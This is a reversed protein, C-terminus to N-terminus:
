HVTLTRVVEAQDGHADYAILAVTDAGATPFTEVPNALTSSAANQFTWRYTFKTDDSDHVAVTFKVKTGHKPSAPSYSFSATPQAFTNRQVCADLRNTWEESLWYSHGNVIENYKGTKTVGLPTGFVFSCKNQSEDGASDRWGSGLPDTIMSSQESSVENLVSDAASGNPEQGSSCGGAISAYPMNAYLLAPPTTDIWAHYSCYGNAQLPDFCGGTLGNADHCSALGPPTFVFYDTGTGKPLHRAALVANIETALQADTICNNSTSGDAFVYNSCGDPPLPDTDIIAKHSVVSYSVFQKVGATVDYYQTTVAFVNSTKFSDHAVDSFYRSVL